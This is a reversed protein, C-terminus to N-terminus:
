LPCQTHSQRRKLLSATHKIYLRALIESFGVVDTKLNSFYISHPIDARILTQKKKARGESLKHAKNKRVKAEIEGKGESDAWILTENKEWESRNRLFGKLPCQIKIRNKRAEM